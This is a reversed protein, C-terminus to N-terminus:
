KQEALQKALVTEEELSNVLGDLRAHHIKKLIEKVQPGPTIWELIIKGSIEPKIFRWQEWYDLLDQHMQTTHESAVLAWVAAEPLHVLREYIESPKCEHWHSCKTTQFATWSQREQKSLHFAKLCLMLSTENMQDMLGILHVIKLAKPDFKSAYVQVKQYYNELNKTWGIEPALCRTVHLEFLKKLYPIPNQKEFIKYLENRIRGSCFHDFHKSHMASVILSETEQEIEFGLNISLRVARWSRVPDELFKRKHLTRLIQAELDALGQYPDLLHGFNDPCLEIAMANITFDRRILDADLNAIKVEPNAGPYAYTETRATAFDLDLQELRLTATGYQPYSHLIGGWEQHLRVAIKDVHTNESVMDIDWDFKREPLLMDRVSGGILYLNYGMEAALAGIQRLKKLVDAPLYRHLEQDLYYGTKM